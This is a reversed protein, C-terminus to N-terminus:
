KQLAMLRAAANGGATVAAIDSTSAAKFKGQDSKGMDNEPDTMAAQEALFEAFFKKRLALMPNEQEASITRAKPDIYIVGNFEGEEIAKDLFAIEDPAGTIYMGHKFHLVKGKPTIINCFKSSSKYLRKDPPTAVPSTTTPEM